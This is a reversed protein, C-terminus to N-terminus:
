ASEGGAVLPVRGSLITPGSQLPHQVVSLPASCATLSPHAMSRSMQENCRAGEAPIKCYYMAPSQVVHEYEEREEKRRRRGRWEGRWKPRGRKRPLDRRQQPRVAQLAVGPRLSAGVEVERTSGAEERPARM